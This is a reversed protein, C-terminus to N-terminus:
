KTLKEEKKPPQPSGRPFLVARVSYTCVTARSYMAIINCRPPLLYEFQAEHLLLHLLVLTDYVATRIEM